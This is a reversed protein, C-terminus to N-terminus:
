IPVSLAGSLFYYHILKSKQFVTTNFSFIHTYDNQNKVGLSLISSLAKFTSWGQAM